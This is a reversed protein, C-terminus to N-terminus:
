PRPIMSALKDPDTEDPAQSPDGGGRLQVAPRQSPPQGAAKGHKDAYKKAAADVDEPTKGHIWELDEEDLGYQIAARLRANELQADTLATAKETLEKDKRQQDSLKANEIEDIQKQLADAREKAKSLDGDKNQILKWARDPDFTAPDDGWPPKAESGPAPTAAPDGPTGTDGGSPAPDSPPNEGGGGPEGAEGSMAHRLLKLLNKNM